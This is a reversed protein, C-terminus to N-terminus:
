APVFIISPEIQLPDRDDFNPTKGEPWLSIVEFRKVAENWTDLNLKRNMSGDPNRHRSVNIVVADEEVVKKLEEYNNQYM